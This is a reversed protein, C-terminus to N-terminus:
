QLRKVHMSAKSSRIRDYESLAPLKSAKIYMTRAEDERDMVECTKGLEYYAIMLSPDLAIAKRLLRESDENTGSPLGGFFTNAFAKLFWNLHAVERYFIGLVCYSLAYSPNIEIAKKAYMEVDRGIKVKEKGGKYLAMNGTAASMFFYSEARDPYKELMREAYSLATSYYKEADPADNGQKARIVDAIDMNTRSLRLLAEFHDPSIRLAEEYKRLAASNNFAGLLQDGQRLLNEVTGAFLTLPSLLMILVLSTILRLPKM